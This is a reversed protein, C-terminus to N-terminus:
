GDTSAKTKTAQNEAYGRLIRALNHRSQLDNCRAEEADLEEDTQGPGGPEGGCGPENLARLECTEAATLGVLPQQGDADTAFSATPDPDAGRLPGPEDPLATGAKVRQMRLALLGLFRDVRFATVVLPAGAVDLGAAEEGDPVIRCVLEDTAPDRSILATIPSPTSGAPQSALVSLRPHVATLWILRAERPPFGHRTLEHIAAIQAVDMRLYTAARGKGVRERLVVVKRNVWANLVVMPLGPVCALAEATSFTETDAVASTM